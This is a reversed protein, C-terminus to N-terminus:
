CTKQGHLPTNKILLKLPKVGILLDLADHQSIM